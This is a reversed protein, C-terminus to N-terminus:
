SAISKHYESTVYRIILEESEDADIKGLIIDKCIEKPMKYEHLADMTEILGDTGQPYFEGDESTLLDHVDQCFDLVIGVVKTAPAEYLNKKAKM